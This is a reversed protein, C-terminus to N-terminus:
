WRKFTFSNDFLQLNELYFLTAELNRYGPKSFNWCFENHDSVQDVSLSYPRNLIEYDNGGLQGADGITIFDDDDYGLKLWFQFINSKSSSCPVIDFSHSSELLKIGQINKLLSVMRDRLSPKDSDILVTLQYPNKDEVGEIKISNNNAMVQIASLVREFPEPVYTLGKDPQKNDGLLGICGGNYYAIVIDNWYKTQIQKQLEIRVSKGRGTAIGIKIGNSLLLNIKQCIQEYLRNDSNKEYITGDFDFIIGKYSRSFLQDKFTSAYSDYADRNRLTPNKQKRYASMKISNNRRSKLNETNCINYNLHYLKRGFEATAPRGPNIGRIFGAQMVLNFVFNYAQFLGLVSEDSAEFRLVPIDQPLLNLTKDVNQKDSVNAFSIIATKDRRDSLWYHRGHAFNRFDVLQINGLSAESFKSELDIAAPTTMGGHLVIFTDRSLLEELQAQQFSTTEWSFSKPVHYFASGTLKEFARCLLILCSVTSEVALYGDKRIPMNYEFYYNHLNERQMRKIPANINMCCTLLGNPESESVYRYANISDCNRGGATFLIVAMNKLQMQYVTLELPTAKKVIGGNVTHLYEFIAAVSYSGGSGICLFPLNEYKELFDVISQINCDYASKHILDLNRLEKEFNRGM